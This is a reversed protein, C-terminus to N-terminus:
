LLVKASISLAASESRLILPSNFRKVNFNKLFEKEDKSFGGECGLLATKIESVDDLVDESFDLVQTNPHKSMFTKIDKGEDLLMMVNRGCQQMSSKLIREYRKFDHKFNKQSRDCNIFTIKEVGIENLSPLVKEVSKSDINCWALHFSKKAMLLKKESKILTCYLAKPEISTIKYTHLTQMDDENVFVIEDDVSHRRVKVLYKFNENKIKLSEKSADQDFIFIM